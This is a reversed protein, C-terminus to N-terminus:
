QLLNYWFRYWYLRCVSSFNYRFSCTYIDNLIHSSLCGHDYEFINPLSQQISTGYVSWILSSKYEATSYYIAVSTHSFGTSPFYCMCRVFVVWGCTVMLSFEWCSWGYLFFLGYSNIVTDSSLVFYNHTYLCLPYALLGPEIQIIL